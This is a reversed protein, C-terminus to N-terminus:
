GSFKIKYIKQINKFFKLYKKGKLSLTLCNNKRNIFGNNVLIEVRKDFSTKKFETKYYKNLNVSARKFYLYIIVKVSVSRYLGAYLFLILVSFISQFIFFNINKLYIINIFNTMIFYVIVYLFFKEFTYKKMLISILFNLSLFFFISILYFYM